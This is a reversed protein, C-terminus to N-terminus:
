ATNPFLDLAVINSLAYRASTLRSADRALTAPDCSVYVVSSPKGHTLLHGVADASLGTRPPDVIVVDANRAGGAALFGEVSRHVIHVRGAYPKANAELDRAAVPEGEVLTVDSLGAAAVALGILGGGAYLDVVSGTRVRAVVERVLRTVLFRNGQF